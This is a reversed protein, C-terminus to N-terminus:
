ALLLAANVDALKLRAPQQAKIKQMHLYDLSDAMKEEDTLLARLGEGAASPIVVFNALGDKAM